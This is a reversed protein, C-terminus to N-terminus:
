VPKPLNFDTILSCNIYMPKMCLRKKSSGESTVLRLGNVVMAQGWQGVDWVRTADMCQRLETTVLEAHEDASSHSPLRAADQTHGRGM